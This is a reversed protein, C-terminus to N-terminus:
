WVGTLQPPLFILMIEVKSKFVCENCAATAVASNGHRVFGGLCIQGAPWWQPCFCDYVRVCACVVCVYVAFFCERCVLMARGSVWCHRSDSAKTKWPTAM